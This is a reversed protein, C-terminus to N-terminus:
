DLWEFNEAKPMQDLVHHVFSPPTALKRAVINMWAGDVTLIACIINDGKTIHHQITWRSYDRKAKLV